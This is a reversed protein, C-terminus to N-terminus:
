RVRDSILLPTRSICSLSSLTESSVACRCPENRAPLMKARTIPGRTRSYASKEVAVVACCTEEEGFHKNSLGSSFSSLDGNTACVARILVMTFREPFLLRDDHNLAIVQHNSFRYPNPQKAASFHCLSLVAQVLTAAIPAGM